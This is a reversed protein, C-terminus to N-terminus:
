LVNGKLMSRFMILEERQGTNEIKIDPGVSPVLFHTKNAQGILRELIVNACIFLCLCVSGEIGHLSRVSALDSSSSVNVRGRICWVFSSSGLRLVEGLCEEWM